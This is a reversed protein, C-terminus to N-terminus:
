DAVEVDDFRISDEVIKFDYAPLATIDLDGVDVWQILNKAETLSDAVFWVKKTVVEDVWVVYQKSMM